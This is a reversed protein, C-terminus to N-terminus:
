YVTWLSQFDCIGFARSARGIRDKIDRNVEVHCELYKLDSVVQIADDKIIIPM